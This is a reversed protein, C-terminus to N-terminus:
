EWYELEYGLTVSGDENVDFSQNNIRQFRPARYIDHQRLIKQIINANSLKPNQIQIEGTVIMGGGPKYRYFMIMMTVLTKIAWASVCYLICCLIGHERIAQLTWAEYRICVIIGLILLFLPLKIQNYIIRFFTTKNKM